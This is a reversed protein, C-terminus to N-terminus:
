ALSPPRTVSSSVVAVTTPNLTPLEVDATAKGVGGGWRHQGLSRRVHVFVKSLRRGSWASSSNSDGFVYRSLVNWEDNFEAAADPPLRESPSTVGLRGAVARNWQLVAAYAETAVNARCARLLRSAAAVEPDSRRTQQVSLLTTVSKAILWASMGITLSGLVFPWFSSPTPALTEAILVENQVDVLRGPLSERKLERTDPDWWAVSIDPLQFTGAREFQYKITESRMALSTSRESSDQVIPGTAYSRVGAPTEIAVPPFMMATTGTARRSITRAIVDGAQVHGIADPQWTQSLEMNRAVVVVGLKETGPPRTSRFSLEQTFGEVPEAASLFTKKGAFRVGFAPIVIEGARQTYIAFEHRQTFYSADGIKENGVLPNGLRVFTTRPLEPFDFSATGSFPGPSYLTVILPVAQGTWVEDEGLKASVVEAAASVSLCVAFLLVGMCRLVSQWNICTGHRKLRREHSENMM